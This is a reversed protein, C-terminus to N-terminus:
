WRRTLQPHNPLPCPRAQTASLSMLADATTPMAPPPSPPSSQPRAPPAVAGTSAGPVFPMTPAPLATTAASVGAHRTPAPMVPLPESLTAGRRPSTSRRPSAPSIPPRAHTGGSSSLPSSQPPLPPPPSASPTSDLAGAPPSTPSSSTSCASTAPIPVVPVPPNCAETALASAGTSLSSTLPVPGLHGGREDALPEPPPHQPEEPRTTPLPPPLPPPPAAIIGALLPPPPHQSPSLLPSAIGGPAHLDIPAGALSVPLALSFRSGCDEALPVTATGSDSCPFLRRARPVGADAASSNDCEARHTSPLVATGRVLAPHPPSLDRLSFSHVPLPVPSDRRPVSPSRVLHQRLLSQCQDSLTQSRGRWSLPSPIVSYM